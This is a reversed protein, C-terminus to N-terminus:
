KKQTNSSRKNIVLLPILENYEISKTKEIKGIKANASMDMNDSTQKTIDDIDEVINPLVKEVEQAILGYTKGGNTKVADDKWNFSVPNLKMIKNLSNTSDLKEIDKKKNVDSYSHYSYYKGRAYVHGATAHVSLVNRYNHLSTSGRITFYPWGKKTQAPNGAHIISADNGDYLTLHGHLTHVHDASINLMSHGGNKNNYFIRAQACKSAGHYNKYVDSTDFYNDVSFYGTPSASKEANRLNLQGGEYKSGASSGITIHGGKGIHTTQLHTTNPGVTINNFSHAKKATLIKAKDRYDIIDGHIYTTKNLYFNARDTQIHAYTSNASGIDVYGSKGNVRIGWSGNGRINAGSVNIGPGQYVGDNDIYSKDTGGRRFNVIRVSNSGANLYFRNSHYEIKGRNTGANGTWTKAGGEYFYMNPSQVNGYIYNANEFIRLRWARKHNLFGISNSSDAYVYGRATSNNCTFRLGTNTSNGSRIHFDQNNVPYLHWGKGSASGHWYIGANTNYMELWNDASYYGSSGLGSKRVFNSSSTVGSAGKQGKAGTSGKAGVSGKAGRSGTSGRPGLAGAQQFSLMNIAGRNHDHISLYVHFRKGSGISIRHKPAGNIYWTVYYNDYTITFIDSVSFSTGTKIVSGRRRIDYKANDCYFSYDINVYRASAGGTGAYHSLGVFFHNSQTSCRWSVSAGNTFSTQSYGFGTTWTSTGPRKSIVQGNSSVSIGSGTLLMHANANGSLGTPGRSGTSGRPGTAGRTGTAGKAGPSGTTGKAGTSGTAGRAGTSGTAGRAGTAGPAGKAGSAGSAGRAGTAGSAGRAGLPGQVGRAGTAGTAGKAGTAGTAGRPGTAGKAGSAGSAGAPGTAGSAGQAGQAGQAGTAGKEGKAGSTSVAEKLQNLTVRTTKGTSSADKGSTTSKDVVLFEDANNLVQIQDLESIKKNEAM